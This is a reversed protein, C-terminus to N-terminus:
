GRFVCERAAALSILLIGTLELIWNGRFGIVTTGLIMDVHHFSVARVLVFTLLFLTGGALLKHSMCFARYRWIFWSGSAGAGVLVGLVFWEQVWRRQEYWGQHRAVVRGIDTLLSQLDLQKNVCLCAMAVAVAMWLKVEGRSGQVECCIEAEARGALAALVAGVAYGAVTFWGMLSPDGISPRWQLESIFDMPIRTVQALETRHKGSISDGLSIISATAERPHM